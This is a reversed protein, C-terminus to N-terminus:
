NNEELCEKCHRIFNEKNLKMASLEDKIAERLADTFFDADFDDSDCKCTIQSVNINETDTIFKVLEDMSPTNARLKTVLENNYLISIENAM